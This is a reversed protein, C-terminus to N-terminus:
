YTLLYTLLNLMCDKERHKVLALEQLMVFSHYQLDEKVFKYSLTRRINSGEGEVEDMETAIVREDVSYIMSRFKDVDCFKKKVQEDSLGSDRTERRQWDSVAGGKRERGKGEVVSGNLCILSIIPLLFYFLFSSM